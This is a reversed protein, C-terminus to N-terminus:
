RRVVHGQTQHREGAPCLEDVSLVLGAVACACNHSFDGRCSWHKVPLPMIFAWFPFPLLSGPSHRASSDTQRRHRPFREPPHRPKDLTWRCSKVGASGGSTGTSRRHGEDHRQEKAMQPTLDTQAKGSEGGGLGRAARMRSPAAARSKKKTWRYGSVKKRAGVRDFPSCRREHAEMKASGTGNQLCLGAFGAHKNLPRPRATVLSGICM